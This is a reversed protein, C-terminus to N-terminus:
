NLTRRLFARAIKWHREITAHSLGMVSATEEITLGGFFKLEVIRAQDAHLAALQALAEDLALLDAARNGLQTEAAALSVQQWDGGRKDYNRARAYDVLVQRMLRAALGFFHARNQWDISQDVLKLYAENILASTQLTHNGRERQMYRHALQRLETQVLPLLEELAAADGAQWDRLLRTVEQPMPM